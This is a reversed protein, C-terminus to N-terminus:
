DVKNKMETSKDKIVGKTEESRHEIKQKACEADTGTCAAEDVRHMSEHADRKVEKKIAETKETVTEGAHVNSFLFSIAILGSLLLYKM